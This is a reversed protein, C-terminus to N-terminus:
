PSGWWIRGLQGHPMASQRECDEGVDTPNTCRITGRFYERAGWREYNEPSGLFGPEFTERARIMYKVMAAADNRFSALNFLEAETRQFSDAVM